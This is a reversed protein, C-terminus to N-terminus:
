ESLLIIVKKKKKKKKKHASDNFHNSPHYPNILKRKFGLKNFKYSCVYHKENKIVMYYVM